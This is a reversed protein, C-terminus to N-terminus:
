SPRYTSKCWRASFRAVLVPVAADRVGAAINLPEEVALVGRTVDDGLPVDARPNLRDYWVPGKDQRTSGPDPSAAGHAWM